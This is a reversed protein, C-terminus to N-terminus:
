IILLDKTKTAILQQTPLTVGIVSNPEIKPSILTAVYRSPLTRFDRCTSVEFLM